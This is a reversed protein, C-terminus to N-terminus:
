RYSSTCIWIMPNRVRFILIEYDWFAIRKLYVLKFLIAKKHIRAELLRLKEKQEISSERKVKSIFDLMMILYMSKGIIRHLWTIREIIAGRYTLVSETTLFSRTVVTKKTIIVAIYM